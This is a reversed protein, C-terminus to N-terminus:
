PCDSKGWWIWRLYLLKSVYSIENWGVGEWEHSGKKLHAPLLGGFTWRCFRGQQLLWTNWPCVHESAWVIIGLIFINKASAAQEMVLWDYKLYFFEFAIQNYDVPVPQVPSKPQTFEHGAGLPFVPLSIRAVLFDGNCCCVGYHFFLIVMDTQGLPGELVLNFQFLVGIQGVVSRRALYVTFSYM